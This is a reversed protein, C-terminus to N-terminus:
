LLPYILMACGVVVVLCTIGIGGIVKSRNEDWYRRLPKRRMKIVASDDDKYKFFLFAFLLTLLLFIIILIAYVIIKSKDESSNQMIGSFNLCIKELM